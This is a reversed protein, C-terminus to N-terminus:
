SWKVDNKDNEWRDNLYLKYAEYIDSVHKYSIGLGSNAACNPKNTLGVKPLLAEAQDLIDSNKFIVASKHNKGFRTYYQDNLALMHNWLWKFNDYSQRVWVNSPHNKHTSKYPAKGGSENIATSLMQCSELIMKIVRKNDLYEACKVPDPDTFFINM